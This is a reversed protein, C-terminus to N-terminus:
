GTSKMSRIPILALTGDDQLVVHFFENGYNVSVPGINKILDAVLEPADALVAPSVSYSKQNVLHLEDDSVVEHTSTSDTSFQVPSTSHHTADDPPSIIVGVEGSEPRFVISGIPGKV